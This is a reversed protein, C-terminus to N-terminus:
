VFSSGIIEALKAFVVPYTIEVILTIRRPATAQFLALLSGTRRAHRSTPIVADIRPM